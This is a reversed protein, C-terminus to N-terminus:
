QVRNECNPYAYNTYILAFITLLYTLMLQFYIKWLLGYVFAVKIDKGM